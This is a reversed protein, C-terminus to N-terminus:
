RRPERSHRFAPSVSSKKLAETLILALPPRKAWFEWIGRLRQVQSKPAVHFEEGALWRDLVDRSESVDPADDGADAEIDSPASPREPHWEWLLGCDACTQMRPEDGSAIEVPSQCLPCAACVPTESPRPGDAASTSELNM